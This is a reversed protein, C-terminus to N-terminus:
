GPLDPFHSGRTSQFLAGVARSLPPMCLRHAGLKNVISGVEAFLEACSDSFLFLSLMNTFVNLSLSWALIMQKMQKNM